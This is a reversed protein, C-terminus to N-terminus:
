GEEPVFPYPVPGGGRRPLVVVASGETSTEDRSNKIWVDCDVLGYAPAERKGTVTGSATIVDGALDQGRYQFRIKWVWGGPGAWDQLLQALVHQKWSGNVLLGPLKEHDVAFPLDYHIRHWNEMAASWRMLHMPTMPGKRLAPLADGVAVDDFHLQRALEVTM